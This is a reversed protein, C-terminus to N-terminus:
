ISTNKNLKFWNIYDANFSVAQIGKKSYFNIAGAQGYNDCLVLTREPDGIRTFVRDTKAALEKWGLMDAFDQPLAHDKGDEWRLMGLKRYTEEHKTIYEPSKNPFAVM